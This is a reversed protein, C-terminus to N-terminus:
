RALATVLLGEVTQRAADGFWCAIYFAAGPLEAARWRPMSTWQFDTAGAKTM